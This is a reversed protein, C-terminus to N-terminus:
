RNKSGGLQAASSEPQFPAQKSENTKAAVKRFFIPGSFILASYVEVLDAGLKIREFVDEATMVGGASILLKKSKETGLHSVATQLSKKSLLGLPKGSIGGEAPFNKVTERQLTTNTLVFGDVGCDVSVDIIRKLDDSELDPSLKLLLPKKNNLEVKTTMLPTIFSQLHEKQALDRLGKTNPSSINVVYADGCHNFKELLLQYDEYARSNDTHRNKGINILLPISLDAQSAQLNYFVEDAGSSPFGMKNWLAQDSLSRDLIRGPNPSQPEPTITGVEVFGCGLRQWSLLQEADKDVGGALGLRNKFHIGNWTFSQWVPTESKFFHSYLETALPAVSHSLKPPLWLWPKLM